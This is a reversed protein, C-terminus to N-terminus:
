QTPWFARKPEETVDGDVPVGSRVKPWGLVLHNEHQRM